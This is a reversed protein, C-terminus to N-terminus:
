QSYNVFGKVKNVGSAVVGGLVVVIKLWSSIHWAENRRWPVSFRPPLPLM